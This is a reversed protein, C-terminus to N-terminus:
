RSAAGVALAVARRARRTIEAADPAPSVGLMRRRHLEGLLLSLLAEADGEPDGSRIRAALFRRAARPGSAYFEAAIEPHDAAAAIVARQLAVAEDRLLDASLAIAADVLDDPVPPDAHLYRHQREVAARLMGARDGFDDYLTRKAVRAAEAVRDFTLASLGQEILIRSIMARVRERREARDSATPRGRKAPM